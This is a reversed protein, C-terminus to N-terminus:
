QHLAAFAQVHKWPALAMGTANLSGVAWTSAREPPWIM